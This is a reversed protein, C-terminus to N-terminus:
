LFLFLESCMEVFFSLMMRVEVMMLLLSVSVGFIVNDCFMSLLGFM